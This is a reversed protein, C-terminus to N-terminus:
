LTLKKVSVAMSPDSQPNATDLGPKKRKKSPKVKVETSARRFVM